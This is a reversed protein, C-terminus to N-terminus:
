KGDAAVIDVVFVLTDTGKIGAQSSGSSGYGEAPPIVLLVRSGVTQGVLGTDWGKIVQGEGINVGFPQSRSWSSDFVKKTRWNVGTYQVVVLQGKTVKSGTGKILTKVQLTAPPKSAPITIAPAKDTAASVTPLAGGGNSTQNGTVGATNGINEIMDIVFVLTDTPSVGIQSNGSSGFGDAPPIVALVRSGAKQGILATELGPLLSTSFLTPSGSSYTSGLLKHTSGSWDYLVFNGLLSEKSTLTPGAGQIVTKTYLKAAAREAPITVTPAKGFTGSATVVSNSAVIPGTPSPSASASGSASGSPSSSSSASKSSSSSPSSACGAIAVTAILPIALLAAARRMVVERTLSVTAKSVATNFKRRTQNLTGPEALM